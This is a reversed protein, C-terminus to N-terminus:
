SFFFATLTVVFIVFAHQFVVPQKNKSYISAVQNPSAITEYFWSIYFFFHRGYVKNTTLGTRDLPFAGVMNLPLKGESRPCAVMGWRSREQRQGPPLQLTRWEETERLGQLYEHPLM